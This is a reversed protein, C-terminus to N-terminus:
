CVVCDGHVYMYMGAPGTETLGGFIYAINNYSVMSAHSRAITDDDDDDYM